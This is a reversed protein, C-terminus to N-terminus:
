NFAIWFQCNPWFGMNSSVPVGSPEFSENLYSEYILNPNGTVESLVEIGGYQAASRGPFNETDKVTEQTLALIKEQVSSRM